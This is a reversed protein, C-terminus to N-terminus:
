PLKRDSRRRADGLVYRGGTFYVVWTLKDGSYTPVAYQLETIPVGHEKAGRRALRQPAGPNLRAYPITSM